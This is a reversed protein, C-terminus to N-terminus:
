SPRRTIAFATCIRRSAWGPPSGDTDSRCRRRCCRRAATRPSRSSSRMGRSPEGLAAARERCRQWHETLLAISEQDLALRRQQHTKTDKETLEGAFRTLARRITIVGRDLDVHSWRLACLEGRRAGTTMALWVLTGWDPDEFAEEVIRAAEESSPPRPDPARAAPADVLLVPNSGVWRWRM